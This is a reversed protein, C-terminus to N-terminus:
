EHYRKDKSTEQGGSDRRINGLTPLFSHTTTEIFVNVMCAISTYVYVSFLLLRCSVRERLYNLREEPTMEKDEKSSTSMTGTQAIFPTQSDEKWYLKL